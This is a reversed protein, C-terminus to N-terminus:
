RIRWWWRRRRRRRGLPEAHNWLTRGQVSDQCGSTRLKLDACARHRHWHSPSIHGYRTIEPYCGAAPGLESASSSCFFGREDSLATTGMSCISSKRLSIFFTLSRGLRELAAPSRDVSPDNLESLEECPFLDNSNPIGFSRFTRVKGFPRFTDSMSARPDCWRECIPYGSIPSSLTRTSRVLISSNRSLRGPAIRLASRVMEPIYAEYKSSTEGSGM